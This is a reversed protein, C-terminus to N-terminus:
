IEDLELCGDRTSIVHEKIVIVKGDDDIDIEEFLAKNHNAAVLRFIKDSNCYIDPGKLIDQKM